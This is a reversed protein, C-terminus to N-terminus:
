VGMSCTSKKFSKFWFWGDVFQFNKESVEGEMATPRWPLFQMFNRWIEEKNFSFFDAWELWKKRLKSQLIEQKLSLRFNRIKPSSFPGTKAAKEVSKELLIRSGGQRWKLFIKKDKKAVSKNWKKWVDKSCCINHNPGMIAPWM